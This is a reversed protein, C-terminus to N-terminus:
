GRLGVSDVDHVGREGAAPHGVAVGAVADRRSFHGIDEVPELDDHQGQDIGVAAIDAQQARCGVVVHPSLVAPIDPVRPFVESRVADTNVEIAVERDGPLVGLEVSRIGGLEVVYRRLFAVELDVLSRRRARLDLGLVDHSQRLLVEHLREDVHVHGTSHDGMRPRELADLHQMWRPTEVVRPEVM